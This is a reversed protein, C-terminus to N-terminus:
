TTKTTIVDRNHIEMTILSVVKEREIRTLTGRIMATLKNLYSVQKKKQQKMAGKSGQSIAILAKSCDTTWMISGVTILLQGVTAKVWAEKKGKFGHIAALLLKSIGRRMAKEVQVLWFEVAGDIVVNEAFPAIEGDPAIMQIAEFTRNNNSPPILKLTKIGEFCKKIHKQVAMPDKSQGLIELLDDDSVFYFRPFVMRKTELYQDLSKQIKELGEDMSNLSILITPDLCTRKANPYKYFTEMIKLFDTNVGVFLTYENPLQKAIDGGSMFISELYIWKRQVSLIMELVESVVSLIHEWEDIRSAFAGYFKSAKMTSLAVADDELIQSIDDTSKLKFYKDKYPGVDVQVENWRIQLDNLATEIALEKNANSSMEAIFEAHASLGLRVIDNLSFSKSTPDFDAGVRDRLSQWHRSRLAKNRMDQILPTTEKFKDLKEKMSEWVKWRKIDRGLKSVKKNFNGAINEMEEVDLLAFESMKWKDWYDDWEINVTWIQTLLDLDKATSQLDKNEAPVISFIALGTSIQTEIERAKAIKAKYVDIIKLADEAKKDSSYPLETQSLQRMEGMQSSYAEMQSELEKKMGVKSKDLMKDSDLLMQKFDDFATELNGLMQLEDDKVVVEFKTLTDYIERVPNFRNKITAQQEKLDKCKTIKASLEDLSKPSIRLYEDSKKFLDFIESLEHLGNQNLLGTLKNQYQLCHGVLNDKLTNCDVRVFNITHTSAESQIDAQQSRYRTIDVDFQSPSRNSKAYKRIFQDKDSEWLSKYKDWYSLYKQLETATSSMGNMVQVIIRLIDNDDSIIDYFSKTDSEQKQASILEPVPASVPANTPSVLISSRTNSISTDFNQSKFRPISMAVSIIDKAVVNVSQTLNMMSPNYTVRGTDLIIRVTFLQQPDTKSDGNIAKSLEQLSRKVATKIAQEISKDIMAVQARWERQVESSGERFNKYISQLAAIMKDSCEEYSTMIISRHDRQKNEFVNEEYIANKDIKIMLANSIIKCSKTVIAKCEKFEKLINYVESCNTCCDKVYMEILNKSQWTLKTLGQGIRRDLKRMHDLFLRKEESNMDKIIDNYARVIFMVQERMIRLQERKTCIDHAMYPISFEGHFKEWYSVESFLALLDEDFNSVLEVSGRVPGEIEVRKLLPKDLRLHLGNDKAQETLIDLWIQYRQQKFDRIVSSFAQFSEKTDETDKQSMLSSIRVLM